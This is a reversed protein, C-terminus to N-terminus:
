LFVEEVMERIKDALDNLNRIKVEVLCGHRGIGINQLEKLSYLLLNLEKENLRKFDLKFQFEHGVSVAEQEFLTGTKKARTKSSIELGTFRTFKFNDDVCIADRFFVKSKRNPAGFLGCVACNIEEHAKAIKDPRIETCAELGFLHAIRTANMRMMGKISTGPIIPINKGNKSKTLTGQTRTPLLEYNGTGIILKEKTTLSVDLTANFVDMLKTGEWSFEQYIL